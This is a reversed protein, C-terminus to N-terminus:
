RKPLRYNIHSVFDNFNQTQLVVRGPGTVKTVFLGEGGFVINGIGKVMEIEYQVSKDFAVVNGTDIKLVEGEALQKEIMDGDVELFVMGSGHINQLIFGEGGFLGASFKKTLVIDLSVSPEACLFSGKQVILGEPFESINIPLINGPKTVSFSIVEGDNMATFTNMFISEGALMRGLGKMIGGNTNTKMDIGETQWNMGGSQTFLSEGQNLTFEVSPVISGKIEYRM